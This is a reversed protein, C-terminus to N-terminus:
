SAERGFWKLSSGGLWRPVSRRYRSYDAGFKAGLASEEAPIQLRDIVLVFAAVPLVAITSRRLIAQSVLLGAMGVYMPNRSLRNPGSVILSTPAEVDVPDFSTRQRLFERLSGVALSGSALSVAGAFVVSIPSVKRHRSLLYQGSLGAVLATPPIPVMSM